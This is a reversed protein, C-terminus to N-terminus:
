ISKRVKNQSEDCESKYKEEADIIAKSAEMGEKTAKFIHPNRQMDRVLEDRFVVYPKSELNLNGFIIEIDDIFKKGEFSSLEVFNTLEIYQEKTIKLNRTWDLVWIKGNYEYEVISHLTKKNGITIYGTVIKSSEVSLSVDIARSHCKHYRKNSMLEKILKKDELCNSLKDFTIRLDNDKYEYEKTEQNFTIKELDIITDKYFLKLIKTFM